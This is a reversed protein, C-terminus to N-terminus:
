IMEIAIIMGSGFAKNLGKKIWWKASWCGTMSTWNGIIVRLWM